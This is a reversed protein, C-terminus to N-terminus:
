RRLLRQRLAAYRTNGLMRKPLALAAHRLARLRPAMGKWAVLAAFADIDLDRTIAVRELRGPDIRCNCGPISTLMRRYGIDFAADRERAGGRGGPLAVACVKAGLARLRERSDALEARMSAADLDELFRHSRGHAQVGMGAELLTAIDAEALWGPTGVFDSTVMFEAVMGRAALLPLAVRVNSVDGDDFTIVVDGERAREIADLRITRRGNRALWDLQAAFADPHVSYVPEFHGDDREGAHLGHYMLIPLM